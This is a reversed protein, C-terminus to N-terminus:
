RPKNKLKIQAIAGLNANLSPFRDFAGNKYVIIIVAGEEIITLIEETEITTLTGDFNTLTITTM